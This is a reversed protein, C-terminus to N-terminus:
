GAEISYQACWYLRRVDVTGHMWRCSFWCGSGHNGMTFHRSTPTRLEPDKPHLAGFSSQHHRAKDLSQMELHGSVTLAAIASFPSKQSRRAPAHTNFITKINHNSHMVTSWVTRHTTTLLPGADLSLLGAM